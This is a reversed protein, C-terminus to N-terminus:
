ENKGEMESKIDNVTYWMSRYARFPDQIYRSRYPKYYINKSDGYGMRNSQYYRPVYRPKYSSEITQRVSDRVSNIWPFNQEEYAIAREIIDQDNDDLNELFSSLDDIKSLQGIITTNNFASRVEQYTGGNELFNTLLVYVKSFEAKENFLKRLETKLSGYRNEDFNVSSFTNPNVTQNSYNFEKLLSLAKYWNKVDGKYKRTNGLEAYIVTTLGKFFLEATDGNEFPLNEIYKGLARSGSSGFIYASMKRTFYEYGPGDQLYVSDGLSSVDLLTEIPDRFLPNVKSWINQTLWKLIGNGRTLNGDASPGYLADEKREQDAELFPAFTMESILKIPDATNYVDMVPAGQILTAFIDPMAQKDKWEKETEEDVNYMNAILTIILQMMLASGMVGGGSTALWSLASKGEGEVFLNKAATALSFAEGKAWRVLALPFTTFMFIGNLDKALLPFDGPAGLQQAMLYAAKVENASALENGKNDELAEMRNIMDKKYYASGYVNTKGANLDEVTQLWYAFRVLQTQFEFPKGLYDFYKTFINGKKEYGDVDNLVYDFNTKSLDVGQTNLFQKLQTDAVAGKSQIFASLMKRADNLKFMTKPNAMTMFTLDGLTYKIVRDLIKFPNSMILATAISQVKRMISPLKAPAKTTFFYKMLHDQLKSDVVYVDGAFAKTVLNKKFGGLQNISNSLVDAVWEMSVETLPRVDNLNESLKRGYRDALAYGKSAAYEKLSNFLYESLTDGGLLNNVKALIDNSYEHLNYLDKAKNYGISDPTELKLAASLQAQSRGDKGIIEDIKTKLLLYGEVVNFNARNTMPIYINSYDTNGAILTQRITEQFVNFNTKEYPKSDFEKIKEKVSPQSLYEYMKTRIFNVVPVNALVGKAAARKSFNEYAVHKAVMTMTTEFSRFFDYAAFPVHGTSTLNRERANLIYNKALYFHEKETGAKLTPLILWYLDPVPENTERTVMNQANYADTVINNFEVAIEGYIKEFDKIQGELEFEDKVNLNALINQIRSEMIGRKADDTEKNIQQRLYVVEAIHGKKWSYNSFEKEVGFKFILIKLKELRAMFLGKIATPEKKLTAVIQSVEFSRADDESVGSSTLKLPDLKIVDAADLDKEIFFRHKGNVGFGVSHPQNIGDKESGAMFEQRTTFWNKSMDGGIYNKFTEDALIDKYAVLMEQRAQEKNKEFIVRREIFEKFADFYEPKQKANNLVDLSDANLKSVRIGQWISKYAGLMEAKKEVARYHHFSGLTEGLTQKLESINGARKVRNFTVKTEGDENKFGKIDFQLAFRSFQGSFQSIKEENNKADKLTRTLLSELIKGSYNAYFKPKKEEFSKTAKNWIFYDEVRNEYSMDSFDEDGYIREDVEQPVNVLAGANSDRLLQVGKEFIQQGLKVNTQGGQLTSPNNIYSDSKLVPGFGTSFPNGLKNRASLVPALTNITNKFITTGKKNGNLYNLFEIIGVYGYGDAYYNKGLRKLADHNHETTQLTEVAIDAGLLNKNISDAVANNKSGVGEIDKRIRLNAPVYNFARQVWGRSFLRSIFPNSDRQKKWAEINEDTRFLRIFLQDIAQLGSISNLDKRHIFRDFEENRVEESINLIPNFILTKAMLVHALRLGNNEEVGGINIQSLYSQITNLDESDIEAKVANNKIEFKIARGLAGSWLIAEPNFANNIVTQEDFYREKVKDSTWNVTMEAISLPTGEVAYVIEDRRSDLENDNILNMDKDYFKFGERKMSAFTNGKKFSDDIYKFFHIPKNPDNIFRVFAEHNLGADNFAQQLTKDYVFSTIGDNDTVLKGEFQNPAKVLTAKNKASGTTTIKSKNIMSVDNIGRVVAVTVFQKGADKSDNLYDPHTIHSTLFTVKTNPPIVVGDKIKLGNEGTMIVQNSKINKVDIDFKEGENLVVVDVEAIALSSSGPLTYMSDENAFLSPISKFSYIINAQNYNSYDSAEDGIRNAILVSKNNFGALSNLLFKQAYKVSPNAFRIEENIYGDTFVARLLDPLSKIFSGEEGVKGMSFLITELAEVQQKEAAKLNQIEPANKANNIADVMANEYKDSSRVALDYVELFSEVAQEINSIASKNKILGDLYQAFYDKAALKTGPMMVGDLLNDSSVLAKLQNIVADANNKIFSLDSKSLHVGTADFLEGFGALRQDGKFNSRKTKAYTFLGTVSDIQGFIKKNLLKVISLTNENRISWDESGLYQNQTTYIKTRGSEEYQAIGAINNEVLWSYKLIDEAEKYLESNKDNIDLNEFGKVNKQIFGLVEVKIDEFTRTGQTLNEYDKPIRDKLIKSVREIVLLNTKSIVPSVGQDVLNSIAKGVINLAARQYPSITNALKTLSFTPKFIFIKDGDVDGSHNSKLATSTLTGTIGTAVKDIIKIKYNHLTNPKDSPQRLISVYLDENAKLALNNRVTEIAIKPNNVFNKPLGFLEVFNDISMYFSDNSPREKVFSNSTTDFVPVNDMVSLSQAQTMLSAYPRSTPALKELLVALAGKDINTLVSKKGFNFTSQQIREDDFDYALLTTFEKLVKNRLEDSEINGFIRVLPEISSYFNGLGKEIDGDRAITDTDIEKTAYITFESVSNIQNKQNNLSSEFSSLAKSVEQPDIKANLFYASNQFTEMFAQVIQKPKLDLEEQSDFSLFEMGKRMISNADLSEDKKLVNRFAKFFVEKVTTTEGGVKVTTELIEKFTKANATEPKLNNYIFKIVFDFAFGVDRRYKKNNVKEIFDNTQKDVSERVKDLVSWNKSWSQYRFLAEMDTQLEKQVKAFFPEDKKFIDFYIKMFELSEKSLKEDLKLNSVAGNLKLDINITDSETLSTGLLRQKFDNLKRILSTQGANINLLDQFQNLSFWFLFRSDETSDHGENEAYGYMKRQFDLSDRDGLNNNALKRRIDNLVDINNKALLSNNSILSYGVNYAEGKLVPIDYKSSNYGLITENGSLVNLRKLEKDVYGDMYAKLEEATM